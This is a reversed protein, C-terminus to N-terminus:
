GNLLSETRQDVDLLLGTLTQAELVQRRHHRVKKGYHLQGFKRKEPRQVKETEGENKSM